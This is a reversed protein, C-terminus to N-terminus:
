KYDGSSYNKYLWSNKNKFEEWDEVGKITKDLHEWFAKSKPTDTRRKVNKM